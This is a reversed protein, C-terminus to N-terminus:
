EHWYTNTANENSFTDRKANRRRHYIILHEVRMYALPAIEIVDDALMAEITAPSWYEKFM